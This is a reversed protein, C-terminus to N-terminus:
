ENAIAYLWNNVGNLIDFARKAGQEIEAGPKGGMRRGIGELDDLITVARNLEQKAQNAAAKILNDRKM